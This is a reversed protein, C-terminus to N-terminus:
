KEGVTLAINDLNVNVKGRDTTTLCVFQVQLLGGSGNTQQPNWTDDGVGPNDDIFDSFPISVRKWGTWDVKVEYIFKDDNILAYNKAPDQEVQWNNNDDDALEIKITGSGPGNGYVDMQFSVYKSLDQGEKALYTGLGGVYWNKAPGNLLLSYHGVATAAKEEGGTFDKNSAAQAKEIDFTWWERPSKINGSEFDDILFVQEALVPGALRRTSEPKTPAPGGMAGAPAFGLYWLGFVLCIGIVLKRIEM